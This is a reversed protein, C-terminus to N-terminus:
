QQNFYEKVTNNYMMFCEIINKWTDLKLKGDLRFVKKYGVNKNKYFMSDSLREELQELTFTRVSCDFHDFLKTNTDYISHVYKCDYVEKGITCSKVEEMIFMMKQNGINGWYYDSFDSDNVIKSCYDSGYRCVKPKIKSIDSSFKSGYWYMREEIPRWLSHLGICDLDIRIKLSTNGAYYEKVLLSFLQKNFLNEYFLAHRFYRHPFVIFGTKKHHFCINAGRNEFEFNQILFDYACLGDKDIHDNIFDLCKCVINKVYFMSCGYLRKYYGDSITIGNRNLQAILEHEEKGDM